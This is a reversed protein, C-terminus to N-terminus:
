GSETPVGRSPDGDREGLGRAAAEAAAADEVVAEATATIRRAM